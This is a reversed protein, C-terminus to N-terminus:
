TTMLWVASGIHVFVALLPPAIDRPSRSMVVIADFLEIIGAILFWAAAQGPLLIAVAATGIGFPIARAAYMRAFYTTAEDPEKDSNSGTSLPRGPIAQPRLLAVAGFFASGLAVVANLVMLWTMLPGEEDHTLFSMIRPCRIRPHLFSLPKNM